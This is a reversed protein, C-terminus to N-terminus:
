WVEPKSLNSTTGEVYKNLVPYVLYDFADTLHPAQEQPINTDKEARKDKKYDPLIPTKKLLTSLNPCERRNIRIVKTSDEKLIKNIVHHRTIHEPYAVMAKLRPKWGRKKLLRYIQDFYTETSNPNSKHGQPDGYIEIKNEMGKFEKCFQDILHDIIKTGKVYLESQLRLETGLLQGVVCCIFGANFDFSIMLPQSRDIDQFKSYLSNTYCHTGENYEDYYTNPITDVEECMIEVQYELPNMERQWRELVERGIVPENDWSTAKCFFVKDPYEEQLKEFDLLWKGSSLWPMSTYFCIQQHFPNGEFIYSNGRVTPMIASDYIEKDLGMAAEDIDLGDFNMGRIIDANHGKATSVMQITFGNNFTIVDSYDDPKEYPEAWHAPPKQYRVFHKDKGEQFGNTKLARILSPAVNNKLHSKTISVLGYKARPLYKARLSHNSGITYSKGGGRGGIFVKTKQPANLFAVQKKNLFVDIM